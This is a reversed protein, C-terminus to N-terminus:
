YRHPKLTGFMLWSFFCIDEPSFPYFEFLTSVKQCFLGIGLPERDTQRSRFSKRVNPWLGISRHPILSANRIDMQVDCGTRSGSHITRLVKRSRTRFGPAFPPPFEFGGSFRLRVEVGSVSFRIESRGFPRPVRLTPFSIRDVRETAVGDFRPVVVDCM